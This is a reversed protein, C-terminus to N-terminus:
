TRGFGHLQAGRQGRCRGPSTSTLLKLNLATDQDNQWMLGKDWIIRSLSKESGKVGLRGACSRGASRRGLPADRIGLGPAVASSSEASESAQAPM